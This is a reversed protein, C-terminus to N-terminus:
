AAGGSRRLYSKLVYIIQLELPRMEEEALKVIAGLVEPHGGFNVRIAYIEAKPEEKVKPSAKEGPQDRKKGAQPRNAKEPAKKKRARAETARKQMCSSCYPSRPSITPKEGCDKCLRAKGESAENGSKAQDPMLSKEKEGGFMNQHEKIIVKGQSCDGCELFLFRRSGQVLAFQRALCTSRPIKAHMKQCPFYRSDLTVDERGM